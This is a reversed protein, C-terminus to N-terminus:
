SNGRSINTCRVLPNSAFRKCTERNPDARREEQFSRLGQTCPVDSWHPCGVMVTLFTVDVFSSHRNTKQVACMLKRRSIFFSESSIFGNSSSVFGLGCCNGSKLHPGNCLYSRAPLFSLFFKGGAFAEEPMRLSPRRRSDLTVNHQKKTSPPLANKKQLHRAPSLDAEGYVRTWIPRASIILRAHSGRRDSITPVEDIIARLEVTRPV